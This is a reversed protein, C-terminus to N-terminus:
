QVGLQLNDFWVDSAGGEAGGGLRVVVRRGIEPGSAGATYSVGDTEDWFDETLGVVSRALEVFTSLDGPVTLYGIQYPLSGTRNGGGIAFSKFTYTRGPEFRTPLIQGVAEGTGASYYGFSTGLGQYGTAPFQAHLSWAGSPAWDDVWGFQPSTHFEVDGNAPGVFPLAPPDGVYVALNDYWIDNSGGDAGSGFRIVIQRGVEPGGSPTHSVGEAPSWTRLGTLDVVQTALEVFSSLDGDDAAYGIQYPLSGIRNGGGIAWSRFTYTVGDVFRDALVQGVTEATGASYYGFRTGLTANGAVPFASHFAWAGSPAFGDLYGFQGSVQSELGPNYITPQPPLPPPPATCVNGCENAMLGNCALPDLNSCWDGVVAPWNNCSTDWGWLAYNQIVDPREAVICEECPNGCALTGCSASCQGSMLDDCAAPDIVCWEDVIAPRNSCSPDWGWLTFNELVDPRASLVCDSCPQGCAVFGCSLSCAGAKVGQCAAPDIQCWEDAIADHNPCSTDWGWSAFVPLIDPRESLLCQTCGSGCGGAGVVAIPQSQAPGFWEFDDHVMQAAFFTTGTTPPAQIQFQFTYTTGPAVDQCLFTRNDDITNSYGGCPFGTWVVANPSRGGLRYMRDPFIERWTTTGVNRVTVSVSRVEGPTMTAPVDMSLIEAANGQQPPPPPPPPPPAVSGCDPLSGGKAQYYGTLASWDTHFLSDLGFCGDGEAIDTGGAMFAWQLLGDAGLDFFHDVAASVAGSRSSQASPLNIGDWSGGAFAAQGCGGGQYAGSFGFEGVVWPRGNNRAWTYDEFMGPGSPVSWENNYGHFTVYDLPSAMGNWSVHMQQIRNMLSGGTDGNVAHWTSLFGSGVMQQAGLGKIFQGMEYVFSLMDTANGASLENGLEWAFIEPATAFQQVLAQVMPKYNQRYLQQSFWEPKLLEVPFGNRFEYHGGDGQVINGAQQPYENNYFNTLSVIFKMDPDINRANDILTQLAAAVDGTAKDERAIFVRVVRANVNAAAQLQAAVHQPKHGVGSLNVGIFKYVSGGCTFGAGSPSVLEAGSAPFALLLLGLVILGGLRKKRERTSKM